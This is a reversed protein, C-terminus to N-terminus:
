LCSVWWERASCRNRAHGSIKRLSIPPRTRLGNGTTFLVRMWLSIWLVVEDQPPRAAATEFSPLLRPARERGELRPGASREEPHPSPRDAISCQACRPPSTATHVAQAPLGRRRRARRQPRRRQAYLRHHLAGEPGPADRRLREALQRGNMDPMVIDTFLLDIRAAARADRAGRRTRRGPRRYLGARAPRRRSLQRVRRRGRGGARDRAAPRRRHQGALPRATSSREGRRRYRPLYLKVTTGHGVESYIKVHGGSQKVFGLGHLPRARHGQRRGQDHLVSRLGARRRGAAHRHRHRDRSIM